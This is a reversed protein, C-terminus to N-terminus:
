LNIYFKENSEGCKWCVKFQKEIEIGCSNCIWPQMNININQIYEVCLIAQKLDNNEVWIEPCCIYDMTVSVYENKVFFKIGKNELEGQLITFIADYSNNTRYICQM